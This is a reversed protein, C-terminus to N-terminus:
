KDKKSTKFVRRWIFVAILILIWFPWIRFIVLIFGMLGIWGGVISQKFKEWFSDEETPTFKYEIKKIIMLNLTSFNVMDSMYRLKGEASEIEEELNRIQYEIKLIEEINKAQKVLGQYRELYTRKNKLRIKIDVFSETVDRAEIEKQIIKGQGHEIDSVFKEFNNNPIRIRLSVISERDTNSYSENAYYAKAKSLLSDIYSKSKNLDEVEIKMRGDKIIKKKIVEDNSPVPEQAKPKEPANAYKSGQFAATSAFATADAFSMVGNADVSKPTYGEMNDSENYSEDALEPFSSEETNSSGILGLQGNDRDCSVFLFILLFLGLVKKM